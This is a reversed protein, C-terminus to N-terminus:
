IELESLFKKLKKSNRVTATPLPSGNWSRSLRSMDGRRSGHCIARSARMACAVGLLGMPRLPPCVSIASRLRRQHFGHLLPKTLCPRGNSEFRSEFRFAPPGSGPTIHPPRASPFSPQAHLDYTGTLCTRTALALRRSHSHAAAGPPSGRCKVIDARGAARPHHGPDHRDHRPGSRHRDPGPRPV